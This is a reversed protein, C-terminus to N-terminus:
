AVGNVRAWESPHKAMYDAFVDEDMKALEALSPKGAGPNGGVTSLTKGKEAGAVKASFTDPASEAPPAAQKPQYGLAESQQKIWDLMARPNKGGETIQYGYGRVQDTAAAIAQAEPVGFLMQQKALSEVLFVDRDGLDPVEQVYSQAATQIVSQFRERERQIEEQQERERMKQSIQNVQEATHQGASIFDENWDPPAQEKPADEAKPADFKAMIQDFREAMVKARAEAEAAKAEAARRREREAHMAGHPVTKSKPDVDDPEGAAADTEEEAEAEAPRTETEGPEAHTVPEDSPQEPDLADLVALEEETPDEDDFIGNSDTM